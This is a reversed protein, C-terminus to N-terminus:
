ILLTKSLAHGVNGLAVIHCAGVVEIGLTNLKEHAVVCVGCLSKKVIDVSSLTKVSM